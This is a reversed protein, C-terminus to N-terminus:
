GNDIKVKLHGDASVVKSITEQFELLKEQNTIVKKQFDVQAQVAVDSATQEIKISKKGELVDAAGQRVRRLEEEFNAHATPSYYGKAITRDDFAYGCVQSMQKLLTKLLETRKDLLAKGEAETNATESFTDFLNHWANIVNQDGAFVMEIMNVYRKFEVSLTEGRVMMLNEFLQKKKKKKETDREIWKQAQVAFIPGAITCLALLGDSYNFAM